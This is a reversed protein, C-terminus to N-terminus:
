AARQLRQERLVDLWGAVQHAISARAWTQWVPDITYGQFAPSEAMLAHVRNVLADFHHEGGELYCSLEWLIRVGDQVPRVWGRRDPPLADLGERADSLDGRRGTEWWSDLAWVARAFGFVHTPHDYLCAGLDRLIEHTARAPFLLKQLLAFDTAFQTHPVTRQAVIGGAAANQAVLREVQRLRPRPLLAQGRVPGDADLHPAHVVAALRHQEIQARFLTNGPTVLAFEGGPLAELIQDMSGPGVRGALDDAASLDLCLRTRGGLIAEYDRTAESVVRAYDRCRACACFAIGGIGLVFGDVCDALADILFSAFPKVTERGRSWCLAQGRYGVELAQLEPYRHWVCPPVGNLPFGVYTQMGLGRAHALAQRLVGYRWGHAVTTPEDPHYYHAPWVSVQLMNAGAGHLFDIYALWEPASWTDLSLRSLGWPVPNLHIGRRPVAATNRAFELRMAHQKGGDAEGVIRFGLKAYLHIARANEKYVTLQLGAKGQSRAEEILTEMLLHGLGKDQYRDTVAIGVLPYRPDGVGVESFYAYAVVVEDPPEVLVLRTSRGSQADHTAHRADERTFEHPRFLRRSQPSLGTMFALLRDTDTARLPRLFLERGDRIVRRIM